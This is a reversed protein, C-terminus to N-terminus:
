FLFKLIWTDYSSFFGKFVLCTHDFTLICYILQKIFLAEVWLITILQIEKKKKEFPLDDCSCANLLQIYKTCVYKKSNKKFTDVGQPISLLPSVMIWDRRMTVGREM